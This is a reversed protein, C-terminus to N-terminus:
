PARRHERYVDLCVSRFRKKQVRGSNRIRHSRTGSVLSNARVTDVIARRAIPEVCDIRGVLRDGEPGADRVSASIEATWVRTGCVALNETMAVGPPPKRIVKRNPSNIFRNM